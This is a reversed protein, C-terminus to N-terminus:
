VADEEEIYEVVQVALSNEVLGPKVHYYKINEVYMGLPENINMDLQIIDGTELQLIDEVTITSKGLSVEVNVPVNMMHKEILARYEEMSGQNYKFRNRLSLKDMINDFSLYPICINVFSKQEDIEVSLTILVVPENPSIAQVMQPNAEVSELETELEIIESWAVRFSKLIGLIVEELITIEIDTFDEKDGEDFTSTSIGGCMREVVQVALSPSLALLQNSQLPESKFLGVVTSNPVSRLFEDFSIQEIAMIKMEVNSLIQNSISIGSLKAFHEFIMYLTDIYERSLKFPRRFDYPKIKNKEERDSAEDEPVVGNDIAKLLSDIEEQSLVQKM